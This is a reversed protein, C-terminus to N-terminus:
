VVEGLDAWGSRMSAHVDAIDAKNGTLPIHLWGRISQHSSHKWSTPLSPSRRSNISSTLLKHKLVFGRTARLSAQECAYVRVGVCSRVRVRVRVRVCFFYVCVYYMVYTCAYMCVYMCTRMCMCAHVCAHVRVSVYVCACVFARVCSCVCPRAFSHVLGRAQGCARVCARVCTPSYSNAICMGGVCEAHTERM